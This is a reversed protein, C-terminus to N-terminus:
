DNEGVEKAKYFKKEKIDCVAGIRENMNGFVDNKCTYVTLRNDKTTSVYKNDNKSFKILERVSYVFEGYNTKLTIEDGVELKNLDAFFTNVHASIVTNGEDGIIVSGSTQCAGRELLQPSSGWYVPVDTELADCSLVAYMEGFSPHLFEGEEYTKGSFDNLIDNDKIVLGDEKDSPASKMDDMFALNLYMKIKDYPKILAATIVASSLLLVIFPTVAFLLRNKKKNEM